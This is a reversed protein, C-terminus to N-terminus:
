DLITVDSAKIWGGTWLLNSGLTYFDGSLWLGGWDKSNTAYRWGTIKVLQFPVAKGNDDNKNPTFFDTHGYHSDYSDDHIEIRHDSYGYSLVKMNKGILDDYPKTFREGNIILNNVKKGNMLM